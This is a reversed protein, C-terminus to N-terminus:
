STATSPCSTRAWHWPRPPLRRLAGAAPRGTCCCRLGYASARLRRCTCVIIVHAIQMGVTPLDGVCVLPTPMPVVPLRQADCRNRCRCPPLGHQWPFAFTWLSFTNQPARVPHFLPALVHAVQRWALLLPGVWPLSAVDAAAAGAHWGLISGGSRAAPTQQWAADAAAAAFAGAGVPLAGSVVGQNRLECKEAAKWISSRTETDPAQLRVTSLSRLATLTQLFRACAFNVVWM